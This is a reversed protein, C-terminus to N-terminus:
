ARASRPSSSARRCCATPRTRRRSSSRASDPLQRTTVYHRV